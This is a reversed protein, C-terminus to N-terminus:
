AIGARGHVKGRQKGLLVEREQEWEYVPLNHWIAVELERRAGTSRRWGPFLVLADCRPVIELDRDVFDQPAMDPLDKEFGATNLHPCIVAYGAGWLEVAVRRAAQINEETTATETPSYPGALYLLM